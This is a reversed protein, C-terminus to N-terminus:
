IYFDREENVESIEGLYKSLNKKKKAEKRQDVWLEKKFKKKKLGYLIRYWKCEKKFYTLHDVREWELEVATYWM